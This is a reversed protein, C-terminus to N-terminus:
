RRLHYVFRPVPDTAQTVSPAVLEIHWAAFLRELGSHTFHWTVDHERVVRVRDGDGPAVGGEFVLLGGPALADHIKGVLQEPAQSYHLASVLLAIDYHGMRPVTGEWARDWDLAAFGVDPFRERAVAIVEDDADFGFVFAAGSSRLRGCFYGENCGVDLASSGSVDPLTLADWKAHSDSLGPRDDFSEYALEYGENSSAFEGDVRETTV